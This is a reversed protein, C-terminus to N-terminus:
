EVYLLVDYSEDPDTAFVRSGVQYFAGNVNVHDGINPVQKLITCVFHFFCQNVDEIRVRM